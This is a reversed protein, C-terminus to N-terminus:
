ECDTICSNRKRRCKANQCFCKQQNNCTSILVLFRFRKTQGTLVDLAPQVQGNTTMIHVNEELYEELSIGATTQVHDLRYNLKM